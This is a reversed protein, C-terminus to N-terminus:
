STCDPAKQWSESKHTATRHWAVDTVDNGPSATRRSVIRPSTSSGLNVVIICAVTDYQPPDHHTIDHYSRKHQTMLYFLM